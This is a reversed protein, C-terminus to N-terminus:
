VQSSSSERTTPNIFSSIFDKLSQVQSQLELNKKKHEQARKILAHVLFDAHYFDGEITSPEMDVHIIMYKKETVNSADISGVPDVIKLIQHGYASDSIIQSIRKAKKPKCSSQLLLAVM